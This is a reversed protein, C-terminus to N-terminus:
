EPSYTNLDKLGALDFDDDEPGVSVIDRVDHPAEFFAHVCVGMKRLEGVDYKRQVLPLVGILGVVM